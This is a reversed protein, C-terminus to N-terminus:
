VIGRSRKIQSIMRDYEVEWQPTGEAMNRIRARAERDIDEDVHLYKKLITHVKKRLEHDEGFVEEINRSVFFFQIMQNIVYDIGEEGLKFGRKEAESRKIRTFESNDLGRRDLTDRVADNLRREDDLYSRMVSGVDLEAEEILHSAVEIDGVDVLTTVIEHAIPPIMRAYLRM